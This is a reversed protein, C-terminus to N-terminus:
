RPNVSDLTYTDSKSAGHNTNITCGVLLQFLVILVIMKKM